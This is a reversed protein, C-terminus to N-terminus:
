PFLSGSGRTLWAIILTVISFLCAFLFTYVGREIPYDSKYLKNAIASIFTCILLAILISDPGIYFMGGYFAVCSVIVGIILGEILSRKVM